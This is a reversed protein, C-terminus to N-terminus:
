ASLLARPSDRAPSRVQLDLPAQWCLEKRSRIAVVSNMAEARDHHYVRYAHRARSVGQRHLGDHGYRPRAM